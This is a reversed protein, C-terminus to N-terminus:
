KLHGKMAITGPPAQADPHRALEAPCESVPSASLIQKLDFFLASDEPTLFTIALGEKGARGTRGIRHTYDEISRAMDYNLVCKVDDIHLGRGAVDTAVLVDTEGKKLSELAEMRQEQTKGGHLAAVKFSAKELSKALVECGKKQNVFIIIPPELEHSLLEVLKKRKAGESLMFVRQEIKDVPRGRTGITVVVPRRMYQRALREVAPPMTASFMFTQRFRHEPDLHALTKTPDEADETDPKLNSVPLYDLIKKVEPEFGMDMMRDAEDLVVYTCRSLVLYRSEVVDVLRGPTAIVLDAGNRLQTAQEDKSLGGVLAIVRFSLPRAFKLAEEEIQQALERAPALIIAFPGADEDNQRVPPPLQMLWSFLPLLFAATKGGGTEALGIVDRIQMGVPIAQRQIATPEKYGLLDIIRVLPTPIGSETWYRIPNPINGGRTSINFDERLIRWDRPTMQELAKDTWHREDWQTRKEKSAVQERLEEERKLETDSRRAGIYAGYFENQAKKQAKVDIGAIHGRGFFQAVHVNDYLPNSDASTDEAADWDFEVRKENMKRIKRKERHMGLYTERIASREKDTLPRLEEGYSTPSPSDDRSADTERMALSVPDIPPPTVAPVAGSPVALSDAPRHPIPATLAPTPALMPAVLASPTAVPAASVSKIFAAADSDVLGSPQSATALLAAPQRLAAVQQQRRELAAAARQEKTLFVPRSLRKEEEAQRARLEELSLPQIPHSASSPQPPLTLTPLSAIHCSVQPKNPVKFVM